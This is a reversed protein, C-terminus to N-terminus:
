IASRTLLRSATNVTGEAGDLARNVAVSFVCALVALQEDRVPVPWVGDDDDNVAAVPLSLVVAGQHRSDALVERVTSQGRPVELVTANAVAAAPRLRKDVDRCPDIREAVQLRREIEIPDAGDTVAGAPM